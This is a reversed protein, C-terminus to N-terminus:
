DQVMEAARKKPDLNLLAKPPKEMLDAEAKQQELHQELRERTLNRVPSADDEPAKKAAPEKAAQAKKAAPEQKVSPDAGNSANTENAM